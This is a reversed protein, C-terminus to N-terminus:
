LGLEKLIVAPDLKLSFTLKDLMKNETYSKFYEKYVSSYILPLYFNLSNKFFSLQLGGNYLIKDNESNNKWLDATTGADLYISLPIKVPLVKLPNIKDPLTTSLNVAVLWNDTTGIEPSLRDTIIKFAGDREMMQKAALNTKGYAYDNRGLFYSQLTFDEGGTNGSLNLLWNHLVRPDTQTKDKLYMLKGAFGRINLGGGKAYNLFYNAEASLRGLGNTQMATFKLQYPYLVRNNAHIYQLQQIYEPTNKKSFNYKQQVSDYVSLLHQNNIYFFTYGLKRTRKSIDNKEAFTFQLYPSIKNAALYITEVGEPQVKGTTFMNQFIGVETKRIKGTSYDTYKVQSTFNVSKSGFAYRPAIFFQFKNPPLKFNTVFLGASLRDYNNYGLAPGVSIFNKVPHQVYNKIANPSFIVGAKTGKTVMGPIAGKKYIYNWAEQLSVSSHQQLTNLLTQPTVHRYMNQQYYQQMARAFAATGMLEEMHQLWFVPKLYASFFYNMNSLSDPKSEMPMDNIAHCRTQLMIKELQKNGGYYRQEYKNEYYSNLGEDLWAHARENNALIGYFWNHGIEHAITIDLQRGTIDPSIATITPYEMAHKYGAPGQVVSVTKYPYSGLQESYFLVAKKAYELANSWNKKNAPTYYAQVTVTNGDPLLCTDAEYIFDKDAFWAFDHVNKQEFLLTKYTTSTPPTIINSQINKKTAGSNNKSGYNKRQQLWLQEDNNKLVGTAAVVYNDPVTIAVEYNGFESYYEGYELYPMPHWGQQDYVAPKPYWQTLLFSKKRYGSRSFSLPLKVHFPTTINIKGGPVLPAPLIIKVIDIDNPHDETVTPQHNVRFDLQNIYGKENDNSFYFDTEGLNIKQNSYATRDSKYANPWLHFWIYKLTDPSNNIYEISVYGKLSKASDNLTVNIKYNAQQQWYAEQAGSFNM